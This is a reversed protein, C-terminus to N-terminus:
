QLPAITEGAKIPAMGSEAIQKNLNPISQSIVVNIREIQTNLLSTLKKLQDQHRPTVPETISDLEMYLRTIRIMVAAAIAPDAPGAEEQNQVRIQPALGRRLEVVEQLLFTVATNIQEPLNAQNKLGDQLTSLQTRLNELSRQADLGSRQLKNIALMFKLRTEADAPSIRIRPDEEVVVQRTM